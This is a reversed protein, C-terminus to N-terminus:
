TAAPPQQAAALDAQVKALVEAASPSSATQAAEPTAPSLAAVLSQRALEIRDANSRSVVADTYEKLAEDLTM